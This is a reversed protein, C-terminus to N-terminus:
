VKEPKAVSESSKACKRPPIHQQLSDPRYGTKNCKHNHLKPFRGEYNVTRYGSAALERIKQSEIIFNQRM